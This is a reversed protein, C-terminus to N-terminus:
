ETITYGCLEDVHKTYSIFHSSNYIYIFYDIVIMGFQLLRIAKPFINLFYKTVLEVIKVTFPRFVTYILMEQLFILSKCCQRWYRVLTHTIVTFLDWGSMNAFECSEFLIQPHTM